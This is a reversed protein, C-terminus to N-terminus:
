YANKGKGALVIYVNVAAHGKRIIIRKPGYRRYRNFEVSHGLIALM